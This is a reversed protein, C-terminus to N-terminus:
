RLVVNNSEGKQKLALAFAKKSVKIGEAKGENYSKQKADVLEQLTYGQDLGVQYHAELNDLYEKETIVHLGFLKM